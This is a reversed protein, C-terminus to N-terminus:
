SAKQVANSEGAARLRMLVQQLQRHLRVFMDMDMAVRAVLQGEVGESATEGNAAKNAIASALAPEIFGFDVYAIGKAVAITTYNALRPHGSSDNPKLRVEVAPAKSKAQTM